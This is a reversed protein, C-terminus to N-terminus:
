RPLTEALIRVADSLESENLAAFGARFAQIKGHASHAGGPTFALGSAWAAESWAEVDIGDKIRLWLALGGAPVDVDLVSWLREDQRLRELMFDRRAAYTRRAKRAHRQLEGDEILESVARELVVDGQRDILARHASAAEIVDRRAIIYGVRVAPAILKSFSGVYVVRELGAPSAALPLLPKGEFHYEYDYDDEVVVFGHQAALALLKPRRHAALAVTTPYQHHPTVYVARIRAGPESLKCELESTDLGDADVGVHVLEAGAFEFAKWAPVYGPNEVVVRDGPGCLALATLSLAMQSGGAILVEASSCALGRAQNLFAALVERLVIDGAADSYGLGNKSLSSLTRAYARGLAQVPALRADPIGDSLRLLPKAQWGVINGNRNPLADAVALEPLGYSVRTGRAPMSELWGQAVLEELAAVVAKRNVGLADALRRSGPLLAGAVLRGRRIDRVIARALQERRPEAGDADAFLLDFRWPRGAPGRTM